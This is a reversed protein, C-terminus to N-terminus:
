DSALLYSLAKGVTYFSGTQCILADKGTIKFALELAEVVGEATRVTLDKNIKLAIDCISAPDMSRPTGASIAILQDVNPLLIKLNEHVDKDKLSSFILTTKKQPYLEALTDALMRLSDENHASDVIVPIEKEIVQIRGTLQISPSLARIADQSKLVADAGLCTELMALAVAFNNEQHKGPVSITVGSLKMATSQYSGNEYQFDDGLKKIPAKQNDAITGICARAEDPMLGVVVPTDAKIIGAKEGAIATLTNGLIETHDFGISTIATVVPRLVNTSDLRGGLGTEIVGFEIKENQFHLFAIATIIDFFTPPLKECRGREVAPHIDNALRLLEPDSIWQGNVQIRENMKNIHPSTYLGVRYGMTQLLASLFLCTSGKGKTGAVHLSKFARQPNALNDLLTTIRDLGMEPASRSEMTEYNTVNSLYSNFEALNLFAAPM